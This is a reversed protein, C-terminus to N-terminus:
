PGRMVLPLYAWGRIEKFALTIEIHQPTESPIVTFTHPAAIYDPVNGSVTYDGADVTATVEWTAGITSSIVTGGARRWTLNAGSAAPEGPGWMGNDDVDIYATVSLGVTRTLFVTTSVEATAPWAEWNGASDRARSRFYYTGADAVTLLTETVHETGPWGAVKSWPGNSATTREIESYWYGAGEDVVDWTLLLTNSYVTAPLPRLASQPAYTDEHIVLLPPGGILFSGDVATNATAPELTLPLLGDTATVTRTFGQVDVVTASPLLATHSYTLTTGTENWLVDIRGKPTGWFTIRRVGDNSFPGSIQNEGYLYQAAVQFAVYSPRLSLDNRILGFYEQLNTGHLAMEDDHNRFFLFREIGIARAEAFAEIVYSAAEAATARNIHLSEPTGTPWEDWLPVGTETLWIPHPGVRSSMNAQIETAVTRIQYVNSYLHLSMVDFYYNNAAAGDLTKLEDLVSVYYSPNSWYALGAFLVTANPDAAKVAQYGVKLLQAYQAPTGSWFLQGLDPENWIEWVHVGRDKFHDVTEYVYNGWVNNPHDWRLDLGTPPCHRWWYDDDVAMPFLPAGAPGVSQSAASAMVPCTPAAWDATSGLIGIIDIGYAIDRDVIEDHPGFSFSSQPDEILNWRFDFRDWRSGAAAATESLEQGDIKY